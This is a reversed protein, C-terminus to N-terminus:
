YKGVIDLLNQNDTKPKEPKPVIKADNFSPAIESNKQIAQNQSNNSSFGYISIFVICLVVFVAIGASIYKGSNDVKEETQPFFPVRYVKPKSSLETTPEEIKM